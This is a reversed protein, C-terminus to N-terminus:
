EPRTTSRANSPLHPELRDLEATPEVLGHTADYEVIGADALRPLHVHVLAVGIRTLEDEYGSGADADDFELIASALDSVTMSRDRAALISLVTRRRRDALLAYLTDLSLEGDGDTDTPPETRESSDPSSPDDM